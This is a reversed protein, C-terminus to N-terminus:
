AKTLAEVKKGDIKKFGSSDVVAVDIGDGTASDRRLAINVANITVKIAESLSMDKRFERELVGYAFQMGSGIAVYEDSISSGDAWLSFIKFKGDESKGALNVGVLYPFFTRKGSYLINQLLTAAVEVTPETEKNLVYLEMEAKLLNFLMQLDSVAGATTLAINNTLQFVKQVTRHVIMTGATARRDAAVVVGEKCVVAVTTTGKKLKNEEAM